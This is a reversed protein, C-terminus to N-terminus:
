MWDFTCIRASSASSSRKACTVTPPPSYVSASGSRVTPVSRDCWGKRWFTCCSSKYCPRFIGLKTSFCLEEMPKQLSDRERKHREPLREKEHGFLESELLQEPLAGCNLSILPGKARRSEAHVVRAFLSKGTGTEGGILLPVDTVAIRDLFEFLGLMAPSQGILASRGSRARLTALLTSAERKSRSEELARHLFIVLEELKFPKTLYHAAGQRISEIASDIAGHATMMLVPREPALRRSLKLLTMGDVEPMRLDTVVADFSDSELLSAAKRGSGIPIADFGHDHLGECLTEAMALQDDVVLIQPKRELSM